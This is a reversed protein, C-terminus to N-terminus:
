VRGGPHSCHVVGRGRAVRGEKKRSSHQPGCWVRQSSYGGPQISHVVGCEGEQIAATPWVV